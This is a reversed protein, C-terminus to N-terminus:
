QGGGQERETSPTVLLGQQQLQQILEPVNIQPAPNAVQQPMQQQWDVPAYQTSQQGGGFINVPMAPRQQARTYMGMGPRSPPTRQYPTSLANAMGMLSPAMQNRFANLDSFTNNYSQQQQANFPNAAYYNQMAQGRNIIDKLWPQAPAWPERTSTAQSDQGGLLGGVVAGAVPGIVAEPM